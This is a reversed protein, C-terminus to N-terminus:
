KKGKFHLIKRKVAIKLNQIDNQARRNEYM